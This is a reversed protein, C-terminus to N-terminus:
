ARVRARVRLACRPDPGACVWVVQGRHGRRAPPRSGAPRWSGVRAYEVPPWGPGRHAVASRAGAACHAATHRQAARIPRARGPHAQSEAIVVPGGRGAGAVGHRSAGRVGRGSLEADSPWLRLLSRRVQSGWRRIGRRLALSALVEPRVGASILEASTLLFRVSPLGVRSSDRRLGPTARDVAAPGVVAARSAEALQRDLPADDVAASGKIQEQCVLVRHRAGCM